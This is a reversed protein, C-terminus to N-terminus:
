SIFSDLLLCREALIKPRRIAAKSSPLRNQVLSLYIDNISLSKLYRAQIEKVEIALTYGKICKGQIIKLIKDLDAQIPLYWQIIVKGDVHTQLKSSEQLYDMGPREYAEHIIKDLQQAAEEFDMNVEPEIENVDVPVNKTNPLHYEPTLPNIPIDPPKHSPPLCFSDKYVPIDYGPQRLSSGERLPPTPTPLM